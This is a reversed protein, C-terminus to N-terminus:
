DTNKLCTKKLCFINSIFQKILYGCHIFYFYVQDEVDFDSVGIDQDNIAFDMQIPSTPQQDFKCTSTQHGDNGEKGSVEVICPTSKGGLDKL